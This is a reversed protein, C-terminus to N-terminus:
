HRTPVRNELWRLGIILIGSLTLYVAVMFLLPEYTLYTAQRVQTIVAYLDVVTITAVLPTSKLQLIIEGTLTPLARHLARPFWVRCFIKRRPMGFAKAAELEGGPVGAFAGRMIEGQYAAFSVTLAILGYPWAQRLYEWAWSARLEPFQGFLAGLGYYFLWLQLLLPTGRIVTCFATALWALPWIRSLQLLALPLALMFGIIVSTVLMFLSMQLGEWLKPLYDPLWSWDMTQIMALVGAVFLGLLVLRHPQMLASIMTPMRGPTPRAPSPISMADSM